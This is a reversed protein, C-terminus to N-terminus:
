DDVFMSRARLMTVSDAEDIERAEEVSVLRREFMGSSGASLRGLVSSTHYRSGATSGGITGTSALSGSRPSTQEGPGSPMNSDSGGHSHLSSKIIIEVETGRAPAPEESADGADAVAHSATHTLLGWRHLCGAFYLNPLVCLLMPMLQFDEPLGDIIFVASPFM